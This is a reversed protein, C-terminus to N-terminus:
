LLGARSAPTLRPQSETLRNYAHLELNSLRGDPDRETALSLDHDVAQRGHLIIAALEGEVDRFKDITAPDITWVDPVPRDTIRLPARPAVPPRM